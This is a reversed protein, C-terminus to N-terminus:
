LTINVRNTYDDYTLVAPKATTPIQFVVVGSVKEGPQTNSVSQLGKIYSSFTNSDYEYVTGDATKLKFYGPSLLANKENINKVTVDYLVFKNGPRPTSYPGLAFSTSQSNIVVDIGANSQSANGGASKNTEQRGTCGMVSVLLLACIFLLPLAKRLPMNIYRKMMRAIPNM